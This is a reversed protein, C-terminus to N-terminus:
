LRMMCKLVTTIWPSLNTLESLYYLVYEAPMHLVYEIYVCLRRLHLHCTKRVFGGLQM